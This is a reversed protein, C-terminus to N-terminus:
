EVLGWANVSVRECGWSVVLEWEHMIYMGVVRICICTCPWVMGGCVVAIPGAARIMWTVGDSAADCRGRRWRAM